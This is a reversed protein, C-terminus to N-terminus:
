LAEQGLLSTGLIFGEGYGTLIDLHAPTINRILKEVDLASSSGPKSPVTVRITYAPPSSADAVDHEQYIWTEGILETVRATWDSGSGANLSRLHAIVQAKRQELTKSAPAPPLALILEWMHLYTDATLAWMNTFVKNADAEVLNIEKGVVNFIGRVDPDNEYFPPLADLLQQAKPILTRM